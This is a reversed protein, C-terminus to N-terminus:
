LFSVVFLSRKLAGESGRTVIKKTGRGADRTGDRGRGLCGSGGRRRGSWRRTMRIIGMGMGTDMGMVTATGMGMVM